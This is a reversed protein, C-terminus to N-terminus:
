AQRAHKCTLLDWLLSRQAPPVQLGWCQQASVPIQDDQPHGVAFPQWIVALPTAAQKLLDPTTPMAHMTCRMNRPSADGTDRVIFRTQLPPM